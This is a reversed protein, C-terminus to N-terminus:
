ARRLYWVRGQEKQPAPQRRRNSALVLMKLCVAFGAVYYLYWLYAVPAFFSGVAYATLSVQLSVALMWVHRHSRDREYARAIKGMARFLGFIFMTYLIFAPLGVENFIQLYANHQALEHVSVIHFNNVGVGLLWRQPNFGAVELSRQLLSWRLESSQAAQADGSSDFVTFVRAWFSGPAMVVVVLAAAVGLALFAPYRRRLRVMLFLGVVAVTLFGARSYSVLVALGLLGACGWYFLKLAITRRSLALGIAIPLLINLSLALDNPNGFMGGVIGTARFGDGLNQGRAFQILSGLALLTGCVVTVEILRRLRKFSNVVNIMLVFILLVKLFDNTFADFSAGPDLGIVMSVVMLGTLGFLLKLERPMLSLPRGESLQVLFLGALSLLAVIKVVPFTGIPLWENPRFYLLVTFVILGGYAFAQRRGGSARLASAPAPLDV